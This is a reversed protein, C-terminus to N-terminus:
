IKLGPMQRCGLELVLLAVSCLPGLGPFGPRSGEGKGLRVWLVSSIVHGQRREGSQGSSAHGAPDSKGRDVSVHNM